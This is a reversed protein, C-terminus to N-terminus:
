APGLSWVLFLLIAFLPSFWTLFARGSNQEFASKSIRIFSITQLIIGAILFLSVFGIFLIMYYIDRKASNPMITFFLLVPFLSLLIYFNSSIVLSACKLFSGNKEGFIRVTLYSGVSFYLEFMLLFFAFFFINYPFANLLYMFVSIKGEVLYGRMIQSYEVLYSLNLFSLIFNVVIYLTLFILHTKATVKFFEKDSIEQITEPHLHVHITKKFERKFVNDSAFEKIKEILKM